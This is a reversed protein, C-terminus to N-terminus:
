PSTFSFDPPPLDPMTRPLGSDPDRPFSIRREWPVADILQSSNKDTM